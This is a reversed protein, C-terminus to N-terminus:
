KGGLKKELAEYKKAQDPFDRSMSTIAQLKQAPSTKSSDIDAVYSRFEADAVMKKLVPDDAAKACARLATAAEWYKGSAYLAKYRAKKEDLLPACEATVRKKIEAQEKEYAAKQKDIEAQHYAKVASEREERKARQASTESAKEGNRMIDSYVRDCDSRSGGLNKECVQRAAIARHEYDPKSGSWMLIVAVVGVPVGVLWPWVKAKPVVAGCKPCAKATSSIEAKCETCKVLSM